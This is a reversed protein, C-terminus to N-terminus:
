AQFFHFSPFKEQDKKPAVEFLAIVETRVGQAVNFVVLDSNEVIQHLGRGAGGKNANLSGARGTYCSELYNFITEGDLRGFPDEVSVAMLVGDCAYRLRGREKEELVVVNKRDLANYKSRGQEDVPADYIANMLLEELVISCAGRISSRMGVSKFYEMVQNNLDMREDSRTIPLEHVDVGWTLYKELGFIDQSSLKVITTIINKITFTRDNEKTSIVNPMFPLQKLAPLAQKVSESTVFVFKAQPQKRYILEAKDLVEKKLFVIDYNKESLLGELQEPQPAVDLQAGTGGMAMKAIVQKKKESECLLVRVDKMAKETKYLSTIPELLTIVDDVKSLSDLVKGKKDRDKEIEALSNLSVRLPVLHDKFLEELKQFTIERSSYLEEIKKHSAVLEANKLELKKHSKILDETKKQLDLTREAVKEELQLNIAELEMKTQNLESMTKELVKAKQNTLRLKDMLITTYIRYLIHQVKDKEKEGAGTRLFEKSDISYVEVPSSAVISAVCPKGSIVSMEGILDGPRSLRAVFGGDVLVDVSGSVLFYLNQNLAGQRLIEDGPQFRVLKTVKKLHNLLDEPFEDFSSLEEISIPDELKKAAESM